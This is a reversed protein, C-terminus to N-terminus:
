LSLAAQSIFRQCATVPVLHSQPCKTYCWAENTRLFSCSSVHPSPLHGPPYSSRSHLCSSRVYDTCYICVCHSNRCEWHTQLSCESSYFSLAMHTLLHAFCTHVHTPVASERPSVPWVAQHVCHFFLRSRTEFLASTTKQGRCM